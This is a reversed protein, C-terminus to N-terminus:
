KGELVLTVVVPRHDSAEGVGPGDFIRAAGGRVVPELATSVLVHDVRSYTDEKRYAHTWTEGRGDVAPLLHAVDTEGRRRLRQLTKSTKGDNCDGLILFRAETPNPFRALIADRVATAEGLRRQASMPDDARDTFRSKLHLGFLTVEGGPAAVTLEILGRKVVATGGFYPFTLRPHPVVAKFPRRSLVAVHRDRDDGQLVYSQPYDCGEARLDRQLEALYDSGGVEQLVLVDANLTRIVNRLARKEAEPKPYEKRYGEDTMRDAVGYNEVNYTAVTLTEARVAVALVIALIAGIWWSKTQARSM